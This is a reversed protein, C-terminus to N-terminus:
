QYSVIKPTWVGPALPKEHATEPKPWHSPREHIRGKASSTDAQTLRPQNSEPSRGSFIFSKTRYFAFLWQDIKNSTFLIYPRPLKIWMVTLIYERLWIFVSRVMKQTFRRIALPLIPDGRAGGGGGSGAGTSGPGASEATTWIEVFERISGPAFREVNSLKKM